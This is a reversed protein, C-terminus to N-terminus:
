QVVTEPASRREELVSDPAKGGGNSAPANSPMAATTDTREHYETKYTNTPQCGAGALALSALAMLNVRRSLLRYM